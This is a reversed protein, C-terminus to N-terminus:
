ILGMYKFAGSDGYRYTFYVNADPEAMLLALVAQDGDLNAFTFGELVALDIARNDPRLRGITLSAPQWERMVDNWQLFRVRNGHDVDDLWALQTKDGDFGFRGAKVRSIRGELDLENKYVYYLNYTHGAMNSFLMTHFHDNDLHIVVENLSAEGPFAFEGPIISEVNHVSTEDLLIHTDEPNSSFSYNVWQSTTEDYGLISFTMYHRLGMRGSSTGSTGSPTFGTFDFTGPLHPLGEYPSFPAPQMEQLETGLVAGTGFKTFSGVIM